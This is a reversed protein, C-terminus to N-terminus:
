GSSLGSIYHYHTEHSLKNNVPSIMNPYQWLPGNGQGIHLDKGAEIACSIYEKAQEVAEYLSAGQALFTAIASSLTCGTGHLNGSRIRNSGFINLQNGDYLVDCMENGKLHGGKILFACHYKEFLRCVADEMEDVTHVPQQLLVETEHLNPTVLSVEPLLLTCIAEVAEDTMLNHGSTSVMVPDLVVQRPSYQHLLRAIESIIEVNGTMGIKIADPRLDEMVAQMQKGVLEAPVPHVAQVGLTNQVTIATIATAAYGGLASITKIDAQIGAGGSSDSGAVSLVIAKKDM